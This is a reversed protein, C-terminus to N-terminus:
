VAEEIALLQATGSSNSSAAAVDNWWLQAPNVGLVLITYENVANGTDGQPTHRISPQNTATFIGAQVKSYDVVATGIPEQQSFPGFTIDRAVFGGLVYSDGGTIASTVIGALNTASPSQWTYSGKSDDDHVQLSRTWVSPGGVWSGLFTGGGPDEDLSPASLLEQDATITITHNQASTGDNGGSRLRAAPETVVIECAVHAIQVVDQSVTTADNAARNATVRLNNVTVNYDGAIRDATKSAEITTPNSISLQANPSDFLV